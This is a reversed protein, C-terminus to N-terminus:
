TGPSCRRPLGGIQRFVEVRNRVRVEEFRHGSADDVPVHQPQDLQPQFRRDLFPIAVAFPAHAATPAASVARRLATDHARQKGVYVHVAEQLMPPEGSAASRETRVDNRVGVVEHDEAEAVRGLSQRPRIRHHRPEPQCEVLRFGRHLSGPRFVKVEKAVRETRVVIPLIAVPIQARARGLFADLPELGLDAFKQHGAVVTRPRYYAILQVTKQATPGRVEAVASTQRRVARDVIVDVIAARLPEGVVNDESFEAHQVESAHV